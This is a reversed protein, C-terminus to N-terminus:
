GGLDRREALLPQLHLRFRALGSILGTKQEM